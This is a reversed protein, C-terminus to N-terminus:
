KNQGSILTSETPDEIIRKMIELARAGYLGDEIREDFSYRLTMMPRVIPNGGPGVVVEEKSRGAMIFVPINGYEYLHHFGADLDISGLNAIFLSAFLPDKRIFSGPLWGFHDLKMLLWVLWGILFVPLKFTLSLETDTISPKDSRSESIGGEIQRVLEEFSWSPDIERKVLVIPADETKRKKASFSIWIGRRQFIRGGAIFRNMRPRDKLMQASSYILLHLMTARLGTRDRFDRLFTSAKATDLKQEFFVISENRKRMIFPMIRRTRPVNRVYDGDSRWWFPM